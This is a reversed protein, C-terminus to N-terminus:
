AFIFAPCPRDLPSCSSMLGGARNVRVDLAPKYFRFDNAEVVERLEAAFRTAALVTFELHFAFLVDHLISIHNMESKIDLLLGNDTTRLGNSPSAFREKPAARK